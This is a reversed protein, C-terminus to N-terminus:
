IKDKFIWYKKRYLHKSLTDVYGDISELLKQCQEKYNKETLEPSYDLLPFHSIFDFNHGCKTLINKLIEIRNKVSVNENRVENLEKKFRCFRKIQLSSSFAGLDSLIIVLLLITLSIFFM